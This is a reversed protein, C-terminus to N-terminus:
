QALSSHSYMPDSARGLLTAVDLVRDKTRFANLLTSFGPCTGWDHANGIVFVRLKARTLAVNLINPKISAWNRSGGGVDGPASGLVIFVVEAERGQFRHVTGCATPQEKYFLQVEKIVIECEQSVKRFPSIIFATSNKREKGHAPWRHKFLELLDYLTHMEDHVIPGDASQGRVDIWASDGLVCDIGTPDTNAQVMQGCYAIENAVSFMPDACRRHARLPLGTWVGNQPTSTEGIYAGLIMTRDAVTQASAQIPSWCIGVGQRERLRAVVANPVTMVPEVQLPDGIIVARKSRWLAGAVSQPTAQGAEDILLWGLDEQGLKGFLRDFSALTTSVVPVTFFLANWLINRSAEEIPEPLEGVLMSHVARLNPIAKNKCALLTTEHLRLAALFLKARLEDFKPTVWASALHWKQAPQEFFEKDPIVSGARRLDKLCEQYQKVLYSAETTRSGASDIEKRWKADEVRKSQENQTLKKQTDVALHSAQERAHLADRWAAAHATRRSRAENTAAIWQRMRTTELGIAKLWRDWIRPADKIEADKLQDSAIQADLRATQERTDAESSSTQAASLAVHANFIVTDCQALASGHSAKLASIRKKLEDVESEARHLGLTAQEGAAFQSRLKEVQALASLFEDKAGHWTQGATADDQNELVGRIDCPQGPSYTKASKYRNFLANAFTRRNDKSGLAGAILGWAPKNIKATDFVHQAVDAFYGAYSHENRAIKEWSPLEQTINKVAADNNSAVVIGTGAIIEAKIPYINMGGVITKTGFARWPESLAALAKARQVVVDAIVDQLLTTKGTGPPGNVALLGAHNHLQGCIEGVAAQQALMLHHNQSAPWRGVPMQTPSVCGAMADHQTLTDRRQTANSESGLYRSLSSGFPRGGDAQAILRDLDDLYFSNLFEIDPDIKASNDDKRQKRLSSKVVFSFKMKDTLDGLPKLACTLEEELERWTISGGAPTDCTNTSTTVTATALRPPPSSLEISETKPETVTFNGRRSKFAESLIKIDVNLGDLTKKTRLREIAISFGAPVFSDPVANGSSTVVFAGLWGHGSIRQLDDEQLRENPSVVRLIIEAWEKTSAVGVYVAHVWDEDPSDSILSRSHGSHWPLKEGSTLRFIRLRKNSDKEKPTPPINFIETDRWFRLVASPTDTKAKIM